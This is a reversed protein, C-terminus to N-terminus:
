QNEWIVAVRLVINIIRNVPSRNDSPRHYLSTPWNGRYQQKERPYNIFMSLIFPLTLTSLIQVRYPIGFCHRWANRGTRLNNKWSVVKTVVVVVAIINIIFTTIIIIIYQKWIKTCNESHSYTSFLILGWLSVWKISGGGSLDVKSKM